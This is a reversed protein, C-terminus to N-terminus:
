CKSSVWFIIHVDDQRASLSAPFSAKLLERQALDEKEVQEIQEFNKPDIEQLVQAPTHNLLIEDEDMLLRLSVLSRTLIIAQTQPVLLLKGTPFLSSWPSQM